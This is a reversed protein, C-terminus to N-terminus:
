RRRRTERNPRAVGGSVKADDDQPTRGLVVDFSASIEGIKSDPLPKFESLLAARLKPDRVARFLGDNENLPHGKILIQSTFIRHGNRSVAIHIHPTRGPYPVPKITRFSYRGKSDTLFRGYGQFNADREGANASRSHIYAGKNDVQWIEVYANRIPSGSKTMIRGDLYTIEGVAPTTSDNLVILDNDTDLPLKDPYFPGEAIEPTVTM